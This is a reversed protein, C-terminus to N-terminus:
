KIFIGMEPFATLQFVLGMFFASLGEPSRLRELLQGMGLAVALAPITQLCGAAGDIDGIALSLLPLLVFPAYNIMMVTRRERQTFAARKREMADSHFVLAFLVTLFLRAPVNRTWSLYYGLGTVSYLVLVACVATFVATPILLNKERDSTDQMDMGTGLDTFRYLFFLMVGNMSLLAAPILASYAIRDSLFYATLACVAAMPFSVFLIITKKKVLGAPMVAVSKFASTQYKTRDRIIESLVLLLAALLPLSLVRLVPVAALLIDTEQSKGDLRAIFSVASRLAAYSMPLWRHLANGTVDLVSPDRIEEIVTVEERTEAPPQTVAGTVPDTVPDPLVTVTNIVELKRTISDVSAKILENDEGTSVDDWPSAILHVPCLVSSEPISQIWKERTDNTYNLIDYDRSNDMNLAAGILTLSAPEIYGLVATQLVARAGEGFAVIHIDSIPVQATSSFVFLANYFQEALYTTDNYHFPITGGSLGSGPLDFVFVSYGMSRFASTFMETGSSDHELDPVIMVGKGSGSTYVSASIDDGLTNQYIIREMGLHDRVTYACLSLCLVVALITLILKLRTRRKM